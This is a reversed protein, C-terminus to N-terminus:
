VLSETNDTIKDVSKITVESDELDNNIEMENARWGDLFLANNVNAAIDRSNSPGELKEALNAALTPYRRFNGSNANLIAGVQQEKGNGTALDGNDGYIENDNLLIDGFGIAM